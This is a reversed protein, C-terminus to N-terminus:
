KKSVTIVPGLNGDDLVGTKFGKIDTYMKSIAGDLYLANSCNFMRYLAAMEYFTCPNESIIFLAIKNDVNDVVGVGNRINRNLSGIIFNPNSNGGSLLMPGSQTAYAIVKDQKSAINKIYDTTSTVIVNGLLDIYFIGNPQLYFNGKTSNKNVDIGKIVKNDVILLGHSTGDDDFMGANLLAYPKDKFTDWVNKLTQLNKRSNNHIKIKNYKTPVALIKYSINNYIIKLVSAERIKLILNNLSDINPKLKRQLKDLQIKSNAQENEKQKKKKQYFYISDKYLNEISGLKKLQSITSGTISIRKTSDLYVEGFKNLVYYFSDNINNAIEQNRRIDSNLTDNLLYTIHDDEFKLKDLTRFDDQNIQIIEQILNALTDDQILENKKNSSDYDIKEKKPKFINTKTLKRADEKFFISDKGKQFLTQSFALSNFCIALKFITLKLFTSMRM